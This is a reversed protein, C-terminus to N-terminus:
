GALAALLAVAGVFAVLFALLRVVGVAVPSTEAPLHLSLNTM